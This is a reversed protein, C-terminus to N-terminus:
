ADANNHNRSGVSVPSSQLPPHNRSTRVSNFQILHLAVLHSISIYQSLATANVKDHRLAPWTNNKTQAVLFSTSSQAVLPPAVENYPAGKKHTPWLKQLESNAKQSSRCRIPCHTLWLRTWDSTRILVASVSSSQVYLFVTRRVSTSSITPCPAYVACRLWIADSRYVANVIPTSYSYLLCRHFTDQLLSHFKDEQYGHVSTLSTKVEMHKCWSVHKTSGAWLIRWNEKLIAEQPSFCAATYCHSYLPTSM